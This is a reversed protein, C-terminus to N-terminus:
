PVVITDDPKLMINQNLNKGSMFEKHNYHLQEKKGDENRIILINKTDAWEAFGGAASIAQIVTMGPELPYPGPANVKGVTYIRRSRSERVIVTVQPATIYDRLKETIVNKLETATKGKAMVEGILPFTIRGDHMVTIDRTLEPERWVFINLLDNPGILYSPVKTQAIAPKIWSFIATNVLLVSFLFLTMWKYKNRIIM